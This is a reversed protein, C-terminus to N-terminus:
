FQVTATVGLDVQTMSEMRFRQGPLDITPRHHPNIIGSRCSGILRADGGPPSGVNPNCADSFTLIYSPSHLVSANIGFRVYRAAQLELILHFGLRAHAQTDTLGFFNVRRLGETGRELSPQGELVPNALTEHTSSGLADFLPSYDRGESVYDGTFRLDVSFRQWHQRDEWPMVAMGVTFRGLIPPRQNIYGALGGSPLFYRDGSGPWEIQFALGAYPEIYEYRYSSRTEIRLGNTGRGVGPDRARVVQGNRPDAPNSPDYFVDRGLCEGSTDCAHMPEGLNFRGEIMLLWTPVNRDRHQNLVSWALGAALYDVGSRTPSRFPQDLSFYPTGSARDSLDIRDVGGVASLSRDDSLIVPLRAYLALDRFIGVDLGFVLQNIERSFDAVDLWSQSLRGSAAEPRNRERQLRGFEWTRVFAVSINVDFPDHDDFADIVDTFSTPESMLHLQEEDARVAAPVLALAVALLLVLVLAGGPAASASLLGRGRIM